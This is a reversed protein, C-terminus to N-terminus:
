AVRFRTERGELAALLEAAARSGSYGLGYLAVRRRDYIGNAIKLAPVSDLAIDTPGAAALLAPLGAAADLDALARLVAVQLNLAVVMRPAEAVLEAASMGAVEESTLLAFERLPGTAEIRGLAHLARIAYYRVAPVADGLMEIFTAYADGDRSAGLAAVIRARLGPDETEGLLRMLPETAERARLRLLADVIAFREPNGRARELTELLPQAAGAGGGLGLSNIARLRLSANGRGTVLGALAAVAEPDPFHALADVARSRALLSPESGLADLILPLTGHGKFLALAMLCLGRLEEREEEELCGSLAPLARVDGIRGLATYIEGRVAHDFESRVLTALLPEVATVELRLGLYQASRARTTEDAAELGAILAELPIAGHAWGNAEARGGILSAALAISLLAGGIRARRWAAPRGGLGM